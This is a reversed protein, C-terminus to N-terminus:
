EGKFYHIFAQNVTNYNSRSLPIKDGNDVTIETKFISKIYRLGVIYSRHCRIFSEDLLEEIESISSKVEFKENIATVISSHAFAEVSIIDALSVRKVEGNVTFIVNKEKKSINSAARDLVESLKDQLVPKMLYHLASVEYGESIFDPFGTIFIIQIDKNEKRIQKALEVGDMGNMEIDLLAIDYDKEEQYNFLFSEASSFEKVFTVIKRTDAWKNVLDAIYEIDKKCNDCIAIKYNM